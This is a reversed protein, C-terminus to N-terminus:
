AAVRLKALKQSVSHMTRNLEFAIARTRLNGEDWLKLLQAEEKETWPRRQNNIPVILGYGRQHLRTKTYTLAEEAVGRKILLHPLLHELLQVVSAQKKVMLNIMPVPLPASPTVSLRNVWGVRIGDMQIFERIAKMQEHTTASQTFAVTYRKTSCNKNKSATIWGDGDLFGALYPWSIM